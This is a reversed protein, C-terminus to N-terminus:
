KLLTLLPCGGAPKSQTGTVLKPKKMAAKAKPVPGIEYM